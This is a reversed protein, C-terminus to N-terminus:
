KDGIYDVSIIKVGARKMATAPDFGLAVPKVTEASVWKGDLKFQANVHSKREGTKPDIFRTFKARGPIRFSRGTSLMLFVQDDCDGIGWKLTRMPSQWREPRERFFKIERQTYQQLFEVLRRYDKEPINHEQILRAAFDVLAPQGTYKDVWKWFERLQQRYSRIQIDRVMKPPGM